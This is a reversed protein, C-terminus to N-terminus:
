VERVRGADPPTDFKTDGPSLGWLLTYDKVRLDVQGDIIGGTVNFLLDYNRGLANDIIPVRVRMTVTQDPLVLLHSVTVKNPVPKYRGAQEDGPVTLALVREIDSRIHQSVRQEDTRYRPEYRSTSQYFSHPEFHSLAAYLIGFALFTLVYCLAFRGPRGNVFQRLAQKLRGM